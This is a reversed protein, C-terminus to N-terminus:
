FTGSAFGAIRGEGDILKADIVKTAPTDVVGGVIRAPQGPESLDIVYGARLEVNVNVQPQNAPAIGSVGLVHEAARYSVHESEAHILAAMRAAAVTSAVGLVRASRQQLLTVADPRRSLFRSLYERSCGAVKAAQTLNKAEGSLLASFAAEITKPIPRAKKPQPATTPLAPARPAFDPPQKLDAM